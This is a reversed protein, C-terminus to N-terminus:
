RGRLWGVAFLALAPALFWVYREKPLPVTEDSVERGPLPEVQTRFFEGLRPADKGAGVYQGRTEAAVQELPEPKLRTEELQEGFPLFTGAHDGVGVAHVPIGAERAADAGRVWERDEGPDDGDSILVVDQYGPFRKDHAKVAAILAAGIRTGSRVPAGVPPRTEVPPFQGDIDAVVARAHDYDTTLPCLLHPRAAFLVVGVRHGGRRAMGDILDIAANRAAEWRTPASLAAMDDALMTRSLDIVVVVDRGVAIGTEDSKGWRPGSLGLVLSVWGISYALGPWWRRRTAPATLQGAVAAPRGIRAVAAKRRRAAWRDVLALIPTILLLWLLAPRAFRV